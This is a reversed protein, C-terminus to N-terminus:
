GIDVVLGGKGRRRGVSETDEYSQSVFSPPPPLFITKTKKRKQLSM